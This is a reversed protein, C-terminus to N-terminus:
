YAGTPKCSVRSARREPEHGASRPLERGPDIVEGRVAAVAAAEVVVVVVSGAEKLAEARGAPRAPDVNEDVDQEVGVVVCEDADVVVVESGRKLPEVGAVGALVVAAVSAAGVEEAGVADGAAGVVVRVQEAEVSVEGVVGDGGAEGVVWEVPGPRAGAGVGAEFWSRDWEVVSGELGREAVARVPVLVVDLQDAVVRGPRLPLDFSPSGVTEGELVSM